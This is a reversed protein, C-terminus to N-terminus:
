GESVSARWCLLAGSSVNDPESREVFLLFTFDFTSHVHMLSMASCGGCCYLIWMSELLVGRFNAVITRFCNM